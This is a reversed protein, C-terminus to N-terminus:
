SLNKAVQILAGQLSNFNSITIVPFDINMTKLQKTMADGPGLDILLDYQYEPILSYLQYWQLTTYLEKDLLEKEQQHDYIKSLEIPSLIPYLLPQSFLSNLKKQFLGKKDAYVHTHSPLHIGLFQSHTLHYNEMTILLKKLDTTKGGIILRDDSNIIAISCQHQACLAKIETLDFQGRIYLLDYDSGNKLISTMLQTRFSLVTNAEEPSAEVSSLFASVEGLSYGALTIQHHNLFPKILNFLTLQYAGILLQSYNPDDLSWDKQFFDLYMASSYNQLLLKAQANDQFFDFLNNNKYGQGSFICLINM